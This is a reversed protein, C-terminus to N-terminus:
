TGYFEGDSHCGGPPDIKQLPNEESISASEKPPEAHASLVPPAPKLPALIGASEPPQAGPSLILTVKGGAPLLEVTASMNKKCSDCQVITTAKSLIFMLDQSCGCPPQTVRGLSGPLTKAPVIYIKEQM